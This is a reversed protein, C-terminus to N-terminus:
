KKKPRTGFMITVIPKKDPGTSIQLPTPESQPAGEVYQARTRVEVEAKTCAVTFSDIRKSGKTETALTAVCSWGAASGLPMDGQQKLFKPADDEFIVVWESVSTPREEASVVSPTLVVLAALVPFLRM